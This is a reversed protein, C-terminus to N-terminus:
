VLAGKMRNFQSKTNRYIDVENLANPSYNNQTFNIVRGSSMNGSIADLKDSYDVNVQAGSSVVSAFKNMEKEVKHMNQRIGLTFLDIMDPAYTHFNSLPGAKPESFGIVDKIKQALETMTDTVKHWTSKIGDVFNDILDKGWTWAGSISDKISQWIGNFYDSVGSWANHWTSGISWCVSDWISSIQGGLYGFSWKIEDWRQRLQASVNGWMSTTFEGTANGGERMEDQLANWQTRLDNFSGIIRWSPVLSELIDVDSNNIISIDEYMLELASKCHVVGGNVEVDRGVFVDHWWDASTESNWADWNGESDTFEESIVDYIIKIGITIVAIGGLTALLSGMTVGISAAVGEIMPILRAFSTGITSITSIIKGGIMLVPGLSAVLMGIKVILEKTGDDLSSFWKAFDRLKQGLANLIPALTDGIVGGVEALAVKLSNFATKLSDIGDLTNEYTKNVNGLNSNLNVFEDSMESLNLTGDYIAVGLSAGAKNGFLEMAISMAETSDKASAIRHQMEEIAVNLPKGSQTANKMAMKFGVLAQSSDVGSKELKGLFYASQSANFGLEKLTSGNTTISQALADVSIGTDQGVKNLTDLMAGVDEVGLGFVELSKQVLDISTSVDTENLEAFKIFQTSLDELAQGTIGFRTNVEGVASGVVDFSTPISTAIREVIDSMDELADGSAGTKAVLIDLGEDVENFAGVSAVGLAVIPATLSKSLQEGKKTVKGGFEDVQTMLGKFQEVGVSGMQKQQNELNKLANETKVVEAQLKAYQEQSIEGIELKAKADQSAQKLSDLKTKTEQIANTLLKQKNAILEANTPDLKLAKNTERLASQTTRLASDAKKLENVLGSTKGEIEIVIGKVTNSAM